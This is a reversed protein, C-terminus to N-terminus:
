DAQRRVAEQRQADARRQVLEAAAPHRAETSRRHEVLHPADLLKQPRQAGVGCALLAQQVAECSPVIGAEDDISNWAHEMPRPGIPIFLNIQELALGDALNRQLGTAWDDRCIAEARTVEPADHIGKAAQQAPQTRPQVDRKCGEEATTPHGKPGRRPPRQHHAKPLRNRPAPQGRSTAGGGDLPGYVRLVGLEQLGVLLEEVRVLRRVAAWVCLQDEDSM